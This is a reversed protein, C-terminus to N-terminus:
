GRPVLPVVPTAPLSGFTEGPAGSQDSVERRLWVSIVGKKAPCDPMWTYGALMADAIAPTVSDGHALTMISHSVATHGARAGFTEVRAQEVLGPGTGEWRIGHKGTRHRHNWTANGYGIGIRLYFREADDFAIQHLETALKMMATAAEQPIPWKLPDYPYTPWLAWVVVLCDGIQKYPWLGHREAAEEFKVMLRDIVESTQTATWGAIRQEYGVIDLQLALTPLTVAKWSSALIEDAIRTTPVADRVIAALVESRARQTAAMVQTESLLRETEVSAAFRQEVGFWKGFWQALRSPKWHVVFSSNPFPTERSAEWLQGTRLLPHHGEPCGDKRCTTVFDNTVLWAPILGEGPQTAYDEPKDEPTVRGHEDLRIYVMRAHPENNLYLLGGDVREDVTEGRERLFDAPQVAVAVFQGEEVKQRWIRPVGIGHGRSWGFAGSDETPDLVERNHIMHVLGIGPGLKQFAYTKNAEGPKGLYKQAVTGIQKYGAEPSTVLRGFWSRAIAAGAADVGFAVDASAAGADGLHHWHGVMQELRREVELWVRHEVWLNPYPKPLIQKKRYVEYAWRVLDQIEPALPHSFEELDIKLVSVIYHVIEVGNPGFNVLGRQSM